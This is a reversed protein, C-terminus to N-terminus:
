TIPKHIRLPSGKADPHADFIPKMEDKMDYRVTSRRALIAISPRDGLLGLRIASALDTKLRAIQQKDSIMKKSM